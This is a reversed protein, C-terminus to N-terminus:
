LISFYNSILPFPTFCYHFFPQDTYPDKRTEHEGDKHHTTNKCFINDFIIRGIPFYCEGMLFMGFCQFDITHFAVMCPLLTISRALQTFIAMLGLSLPFSNRCLIGIMFIAFSAM